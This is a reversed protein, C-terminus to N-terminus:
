PYRRGVILEDDNIEVRHTLILDALACAKRWVMNCGRTAAFGRDWAFARDVLTDSSPGLVREKLRLVRESPQAWTADTAQQTDAM